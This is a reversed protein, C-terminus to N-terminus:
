GPLRSDLKVHCQGVLHVAFRQHSHESFIRVIVLSSGHAEELTEGKTAEALGPYQRDLILNHLPDGFEEPVTQRGSQGMRCLNRFDPEHEGCARILRLDPLSSQDPSTSQNASQKKSCDQGLCSDWVVTVVVM